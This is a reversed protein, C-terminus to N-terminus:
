RSESQFRLRGFRGYQFEAHGSPYLTSSRFPWPGLGEAQEPERMLDCRTASSSELDAAFRFHVPRALLQLFEALLELSQPHFPSGLHHLIHLAM